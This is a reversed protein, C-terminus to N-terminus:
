TEILEITNMNINVNETYNLLLCVVLLVIIVGPADGSPPSRSKRHLQFDGRPAGGLPVNMTNMNRIIRYPMIKLHM